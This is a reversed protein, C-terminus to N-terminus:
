FSHRIGFDYGVSSKPAFGAQAGNAPYLYGVSGGTTVGLAPNNYGNKVKLYAATAYLATRKSLNHVYGVAFKDVSANLDGMGSTTAFTVPPYSYAGASYGGDKYKVRSYAVRVLGAGVPVTAGVLYGNYRDTGSAFVGQGVSFNSNLASATAAAQASAKDRVQSLEGFLKVVGFDYSGGLNLTNIKRQGSLSTSLVGINGIASAGQGNVDAITSQGYALAVDYAGSAYGLRGGVYRGASSKDCQTYAPSGTVPAPLCTKGSTYGASNSINEDLAYQLQGYFGGLDAPLFYGISNSARTSNGNGLNGNVSSIVNTGVGNTGFPDFNTDNWFTPTYDRGLRLEGFPGSLSLTSRRKFDLGGGSAGASGTDPSLAGELWFSAALGGGLDETGRFGLRSSSLGNTSMATQRQKAGFAAGPYAGLAAPNAVWQGNVITFAPAANFYDSKTSYNSVGVDVVGWLTVSSQASAVGAVALAALAALTAAAHSPNRVSNPALVLARALRRVM